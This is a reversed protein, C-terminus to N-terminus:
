GPGDVARPMEAGREGSIRGRDASRRRGGYEVVWRELDRRWTRVNVRTFHVYVLEGGGNGSWARRVWRRLLNVTTCLEAKAVAGQADYSVIGIPVYLRRLLRRYVREHRNEFPDFIPAQIGNTSIVSSAGDTSPPAPDPITPTSAAAPAEVSAPQVGPSHRRFLGVFRDRKRQRPPPQAFQEPTDGDSNGGSGGEGQRARREAALAARSRMSPSDGSISSSGNSPQQNAAAQVNASPFSGPVPQPHNRMDNQPTQGAERPREAGEEDKPMIGQRCHPCTDHEGLWLRICEGHFWHRCPLVTVADGVDVEDMCITCEAKGNEGLDKKDIQKTPLAKIANETAPGPAHGTQNQEMLQTIVRDLEEQSFVADGFGGGAGAPGMGLMHFINAFRGQTGFPHGPDAGPMGLVLGGRPLGGAGAPPGGAGAPPGGAGAPPQDAFMMGGPANGPMGRTGGPGFAGINMFMQQMIQDLDNPQAQLPQPRNANRPFLNGAQTSSTAITFHGFPSNYHRVTPGARPSGPAPASAARTGQGANPTQQQGQPGLQGQGPEQPPQPQMMGGLAGHMLSGLVGFVGGGPQQTQQAQPQQQQGGQGGSGFPSTRNFTGHQQWQVGGIDEEDPDPAGYYEGHDHGPPERAPLIDDRPDHNSEIIETFDGHCEPCTLGHEDRYWENECEHCYVMDRAGPRDM